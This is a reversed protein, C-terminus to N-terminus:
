WGPSFFEGAMDMSEVEPVDSRSPCGPWLVLLFHGARLHGVQINATVMSAAHRAPITRPWRPAGGLPALALAEPGLKGLLGDLVVGDVPYRVTSVVAKRATGGVVFAGTLGASGVESRVGFIEVEERVVRCGPVTGRVVVAVLAVVVVSGGISSTTRPVRCVDPGPEVGVKM